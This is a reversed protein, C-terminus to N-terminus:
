RTVKLTHNIFTKTVHTVYQDKNLLFGVEWKLPPDSIPIISISDNEVRNLIPKPLITIGHNQAVLELVFDWQSSEFYIKPRFGASHCRELIHHHLMFTKDLMLFIEDKLDEFRVCDKFALAHKKNVVLVNEDEMISIYDYMDMDVPAIVVGVDITGNHLNHEVMKAGNEMITLTIDPYVERFSTLVNVFISSGIVPPLGVIVNGKNLKSTDYLSGKLAEFMNLLEESKLLFNQGIETLKIEKDSRDLLQVDLERELNKISKSLAPQSIHLKKAALTFNRDKAVQAFYKLERFDM